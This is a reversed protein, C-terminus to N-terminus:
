RQEATAAGQPSGGKLQEPAVLVEATM